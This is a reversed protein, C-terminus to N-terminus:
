HQEKNFDKILISTGSKESFFWSIYDKTIKLFMEEESLTSVYPTLGAQVSPSHFSFILKNHGLKLQTNTITKLDNLTFGEPSLRQQKIRLVKLILRTLKNSKCVQYMHPRKDFWREVCSFLATIATTHPWHTIDDKVFITNNFYQFNPGEQRSFDSFPSISIDTSYDLSKLTKLTNKGVGYRGALYTVPSSGCVKTIKNTLEKLKEFELESSLNGPYSNINLEENKKNQIPPNLWPHLHSAFEIDNPYLTKFHKIVAKGENSDVFAFDLAFTIKAGLSILEECFTILKQGHTVHNNSRFFGGNWDFEEETHIVISLKPNM